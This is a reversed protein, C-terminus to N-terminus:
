IITVMIIQFIIPMFPLNIKASNVYQTKKLLKPNQSQDVGDTFLCKTVTILAM